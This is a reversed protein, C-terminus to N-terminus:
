SRGGNQKMNKQSLVIGIGLRIADIIKESDAPDLLVGNFMLGEPQLIAERVSEIIEDLDHQQSEGGSGLLFDSSVHFVACLKGLTEHDPERRGQEYMGIASPSVGIEHALQAQSMGRIKRLEKLRVGLM